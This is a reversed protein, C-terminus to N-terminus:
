LIAAGLVRNTLIRWPLIGAVRNLRTLRSVTWSWAILAVFGLCGVVLLAIIIASDWDYVRSGAQQISFTFLTTFLLLLAAGLWDVQGLSIRVLHFGRQADQPWIFYLVIMIPVAIPPNIWFVWRRDINLM